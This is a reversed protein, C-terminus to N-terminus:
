FNMFFKNPNTNTTYMYLIDNSISQLLKTAKYYSKSHNINKITM